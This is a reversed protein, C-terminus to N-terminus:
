NDEDADEDGAVFEEDATDEEAADFEEAEFGAVPEEVASEEVDYQPMVYAKEERASPDVNDDLRVTLYRIVNDSIRMNRELEAVLSSGGLFHTHVYIGRSHKAIDYALKKKGWHNISLLKGGGVRMVERVRDLTSEVAEGGVDPRLILTTEYETMSM